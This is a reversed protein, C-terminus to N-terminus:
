AELKECDCTYGLSNWYNATVQYREGLDDTIIDRDNVLGLNGKFFIRWGTTDEIDSPLNEIPKKSTRHKQISAAINESILTETASNLGQYPQSGVASLIQPRTIKITRPYIFSM